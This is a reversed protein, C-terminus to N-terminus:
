SGAPAAPEWLGQVGSCSAPAPPCDRVWSDYTSGLTTRLLTWAAAGAIGIFAALLAYEVIDEGADSHLFAWVREM